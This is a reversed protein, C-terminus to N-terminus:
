NANVIRGSGDVKVIVDPEGKYYVDGSGDINVDLVDNVYVECTGSADTNILCIDSILDFALVDGSGDIDITTKNSIGNVNLQGSGDIKAITNTTELHDIKINGSGDIKFDAEQNAILTGEVIIDGSGDIELALQDDTFDADVRIDGSSTNQINNLHPTTIFINLEINSYSGNELEIKWKDNSVNTRLKDIINQHGRAIVSQEIGNTVVVDFSGDLQIGTFTSIDLTETVIPGEGENKDCATFVFVILALVILKKM